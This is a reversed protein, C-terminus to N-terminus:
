EWAQSQPRQHPGLGRTRGGAQTGSGPSGGEIRCKGKSFLKPRLTSGLASTMSGKTSPVSKSSGRVRQEELATCQGQGLPPSPAGPTRFSGERGPAPFPRVVGGGWGGLLFGLASEPFPELGPLLPPSPLLAPLWPPTGVIPKSLTRCPISPALCELLTGNEGGGEERGMQAGGRRFLQSLVGKRWSAKRPQGQRVSGPM